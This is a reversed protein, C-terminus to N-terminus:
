KFPSGYTPSAGSGWDQRWVGCGSRFKSGQVRSDELEWGKFGLAEGGFGM